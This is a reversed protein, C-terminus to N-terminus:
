TEYSVASVFKKWGTFVCVRITESAHLSFRYVFLCYLSSVCVSHICFFSSSSPFRASLNVMKKNRSIFTLDHQVLFHFSLSAFFFWRSIVVSNNQQFFFFCFSTWRVFRLLHRIDATLSVFSSSFLFAYLLVFLCSVLCRFLLISYFFFHQKKAPSSLHLKHVPLFFFFNLFSYLM